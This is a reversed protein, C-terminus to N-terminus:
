IYVWQIIGDIEKQILNGKKYEIMEEETFYCKGGYKNNVIDTYHEEWYERDNNAKANCGSCVAVFLPKVDNCCVMKDYNIHHVTPRQGNEEETKECEVCRRNFFARVREKFAFNFKECYPEFSIGGRWLYSKNGSHSKSMKLLTNESHHKGYNYSLKGKQSCSIKQKSEETHHKGLMPSPLGKHSESIHKRELESKVRGKHRKSIKNRIEESPNKHAESMRKRTEESIPPRNKGSESMRKRTEDSTHKGILSESIHKREEVSKIRGKNSNSIKQKTEESCVHGLHSDRQRIRWLESKIPDKPIPM